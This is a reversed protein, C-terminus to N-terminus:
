TVLYRRSMGERTLSRTCASSLWNWGRLECSFGGGDDPRVRAWQIEVVIEHAGGILDLTKQAKGRGM